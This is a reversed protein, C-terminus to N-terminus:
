CARAAAENGRASHRTGLVSGHPSPAVAEPFLHFYSSVLMGRLNLEKASAHFLNDPGAAPATANYGSIAGVLAIGVDEGDTGGLGM